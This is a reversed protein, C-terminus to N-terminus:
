HPRSKDKKEDPATSAPQAPAPVSAPKSVPAATRADPLILPGKQGCAAASLILLLLPLRVIRPM